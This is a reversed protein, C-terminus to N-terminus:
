FLDWLIPPKSIHSGDVLIDTLLVQPVVPRDAQGQYWPFNHLLDDQTLDCPMHMTNMPDPGSLVPEHFAPRTQGVEDGEIVPHGYQYIISLRNIYDVEIEAFGKVLDRM